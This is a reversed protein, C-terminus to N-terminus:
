VVSKRDAIEGDLLPRLWKEKHEDTGFLTLVEMNGTDPANCNTAEPALQPSRGTIEALHAYELNTLGPGWEAHPHFLNWLGQAKAEAKLDELIQPHHNPNGSERMQQAYVAEAPYVHSDMFATLREVYEAGRETNEFMTTM